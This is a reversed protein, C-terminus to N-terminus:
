ITLSAITNRLFKLSINKADTNLNSKVTMVFFTFALILNISYLYKILKANYITLWVKFVLRKSFLFPKSYQDAYNANTNWYSLLNKKIKTKDEMLLM